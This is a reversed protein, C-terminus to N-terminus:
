SFKSGLDFVVPFRLGSLPANNATMLFGVVEKLYHGPDPEPTAWSRHDESLANIQLKRLSSFLPLFDHYPIVLSPLPAFVKLFETEEIFKELMGSVLSATCKPFGPGENCFDELSVRFLLGPIPTAESRSPLNYIDICSAHLFASLSKSQYDENTWRRFWEVLCSKNFPVQGRPSRATFFLSCGAPTRIYPLFADVGDGSGAVGELMLKKLNPLFVPIRPIDLPNRTGISKVITLEILQPMVRLINLWKAIHPPDVTVHSVSLEHLNKFVSLNNFNPRFLVLRLVRLHKPHEELLRWDDVCNLAQQGTGISDTKLSLVRLEPFPGRLERWIERFPPQIGTYTYGKFELDISRVRERVVSALVKANGPLRVRTDQDVIASFDLKADGTREVVQKLWAAPRSTTWDISSAWLAGSSLAVKRWLQCVHSVTVLINLNKNASANNQGSLLFFISLLVDTPITSIPSSVAWLAPELSPCIAIDNRMSVFDTYGSLNQMFETVVRDRDGGRVALHLTKASKFDPFFADYPLARVGADAWIALDETREINKELLEMLTGFIYMMLLLRHRLTTYRPPRHEFSIRFWSGRWTSTSLYDKDTWRHFWSVLWTVHHTQPRPARLFLGSSYLKCSAPTSLFSLFVDIGDEPGLSGSLGLTKLDPLLVPARRETSNTSPGISGKITFEILHPMVQLLKAFILRTM